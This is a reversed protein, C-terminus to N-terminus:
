LPTSGALFAAVGLHRVLVDLDASTPLQSRDRNKDVICLFGLHDDPAARFQHWDWPLIEILDHPRLDFVEAGSLCQGRGRLVVIALAHKHRELATHGGPEVDFFQVHCELHENDFLVQLSLNTLKQDTDVDNHRVEVDRWQFPLDDHEPRHTM